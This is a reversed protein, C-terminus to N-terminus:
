INNLISTVLKFILIEFYLYSFFYNTKSFALDKRQFQNQLFNMVMFQQKLALLLGRLLRM